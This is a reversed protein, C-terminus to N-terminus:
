QGLELQDKILQFYRGKVAVLEEHRGQEVIKGEDLVIINDANKVTSLRHAIILVTRGEFFANLNGMIKKENNADLSSTAEDLLIHTPDKYVARALLLRQKQGQSLGVGEEGLKTMHKLPLQNYVFDDICATELAWKVKDEDINLRGLAVNKAITDSFIYGDQMVVGCKDRWNGSHINRFNIDGLLLEGKDIPYYKLLLKMLTTKGSGSVGVIATIKKGPIVLDLGKLVM